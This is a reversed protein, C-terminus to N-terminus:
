HKACSRNQCLTESECFRSAPAVVTKSSVSKWFRLQAFCQYLFSFGKDTITNHTTLNGPFPYLILDAKLFQANLFYLIEHSVM